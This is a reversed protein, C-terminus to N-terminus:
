HRGSRLAAAREAAWQDEQQIRDACTTITEALQALQKQTRTMESHLEALKGRFTEGAPGQWAARCDQEMQQLLQLQSALDDANKRIVNAQSIVRAHNIRFRVM